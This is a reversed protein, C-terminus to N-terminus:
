LVVQSVMLNEYTFMMVFARDHGGTFSELMTGPM